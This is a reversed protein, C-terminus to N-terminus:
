LSMRQIGYNERREKWEHKAFFFFLELKVCSRRSKFYVQKPRYRATVHIGSGSASATMPPSESLIQSHTHQTEAIILLWRVQPARHGSARKM